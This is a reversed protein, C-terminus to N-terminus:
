STCLRFGRGTEDSSTPQRSGPVAKLSLAAKGNNPVARFRASTVLSVAWRSLLAKTKIKVGWPCQYTDILYNYEIAPARHNAAGSNM